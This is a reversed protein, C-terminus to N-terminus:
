YGPVFVEGGPLPLPLSGSPVFICDTMLLTWYSNPPVGRNCGIIDILDGVKLKAIDGAKAETCRVQEVWMFGEDKNELSYETVKINKFIFYKGTFDRDAQWRDAYNGYYEWSLAAPTVELCSYYAPMIYQPAAFSNSACGNIIVFLLILPLSFWLNRVSKLM